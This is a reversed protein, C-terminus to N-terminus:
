EKTVILPVRVQETQGPLLRVVPGKGEYVEMAEANRYELEGQLRDFAVIRYVGPPLQHLRFTGEASVGAVTFRGNSDPPPICYVYAEVAAPGSRAIAEGQLSPLASPMGEVTGDIAAGDDRLVIDIPSSAGGSGVVLPQRLLDASGAVASAIYGIYPSVQLWYRGPRVNELVLDNDNPKRPPRPSVGGMIDFEDAPQLSVDAKQVRSFTGYTVSGTSHQGMQEDSINVPISGGPIIAMSAHTLAADRVTINVTGTATQQGQQLIAEVTYTGNPLM